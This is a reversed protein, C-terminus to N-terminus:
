TTRVSPAPMAEIEAIVALVEDREVAPSWLFGQAYRCGVDGLWRAQGPTEVGEAVVWLGMTRALGVLSAVIREDERCAGLGAVFSRDVKVLDVRLDRLVSLSSYGTGFDDLAVTVGLERLQAVTAAARQPDTLAASETIEVTLDRRRVGRADLVEALFPVFERDHLQRASINV